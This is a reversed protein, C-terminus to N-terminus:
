PVLVPGLGLLRGARVVYREPVPLISLADRIIGGALVRLLLIYVAVTAVGAALMGAVPRGSFADLAIAGVIMSVATIPAVSFFPRAVERFGWGLTRSVLAWRAVTALFAVIVFGVAVGILGWRVAIAASGVTAGDVVVAYALWTGPRGLGYFLGHDLMAGLTIIGAVALAQAPRVSAKWDPGFLLPVLVPATVVLLIMVPSIAAYLVGLAKLYTTRLRETSDRVRSFVITSVPVMSAAVLEQAVLVLRQGINLLGLAAPGLAVTVIWSQAAVTGTAVVDVTSVRVGFVTMERLRPPSLRWSPMWRTRRWALIAVVWQLVILQSVLAWVGGGRLALVVAVVQGLLAAVLAQLAVTRFAMQRRLMALPVGALVTPVVALVLVRLVQELEAIKFAMALLPAIVWLGASLVTAAGVSAWFATSLTVQDVDDSQLLYTSFGLDSLLYVIPIVTMAAAVVGFDRPSILHTLVVLTAFGSVRVVWKQVAMWLFGSAARKGLHEQSREQEDVSMAEPHETRV